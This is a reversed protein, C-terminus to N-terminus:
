HSNVFGNDHLWRLYHALSDRFFEGADAYIGFEVLKEIIAKLEDSVEHKVTHTKENEDVIVYLREESYDPDMLVDRMRKRVPESM